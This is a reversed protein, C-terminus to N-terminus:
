LDPSASELLLLLRKTQLRQFYHQPAIVSLSKQQQAATIGNIAFWDLADPEPGMLAKMPKYLQLWM